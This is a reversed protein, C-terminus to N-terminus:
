MNHLGKGDNCSDMSIMYVKEKQYSKKNYIENYGAAIGRKFVETFYPLAFKFKKENFNKWNELMILLGNQLCDRMEDEDKYDKAKRRITNTAILQFYHEAKRTLYGKGKSLIIEYYLDTDNLYNAM